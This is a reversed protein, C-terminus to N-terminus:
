KKEIIYIISSTNIPKGRRVRGQWNSSIGTKVSNLLNVKGEKYKTSLMSVYFSDFWMPLTKKVSFGHKEMLRSMTPKTFHYLHRPVDFAAWHRRYTMADASDPNPVAVVLSGNTKLHDSLWKVTENLQHVHELVHWMSILDFKEGNAALSFISESVNEGIRSSAIERANPDPETGSVQWGNSKAAAAFSGTGCGVDLLKGKKPQLSHVLAVKQQITRNRVVNYIKSMLDKAEDHHSIYDQSQYYAGISDEDPRPNTILFDCHGCQQITFERHSVTYDEVNLYNTFVVGSCIPCKEIKELPM